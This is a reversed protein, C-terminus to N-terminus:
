VISIINSLFCIQPIKKNSNLIPQLAASIVCLLSASPGPVALLPVTCHHNLFNQLPSLRRSSSSHPPQSDSTSLSWSFADSFRIRKYSCLFNGFFEVDVMRRDNPMQLLNSLYLIKTLPHRILQSCILFIM